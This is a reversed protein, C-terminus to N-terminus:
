RIWVVVIVPRAVISWRVVIATRTVPPSISTPMVTPVVVVSTEEDHNVVQTSLIPASRLGRGAITIAAVTKRPRLYLDFWFKDHARRILLAESAM